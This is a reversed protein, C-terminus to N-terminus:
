FQQDFQSRRGPQLFYIISLFIIIAMIPLYAASILDVTPSAQNQLLTIADNLIPIVAAFTFIIVVVVVLGEIVATQGKRM